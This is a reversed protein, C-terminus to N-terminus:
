DDDYEDSLRMFDLFINMFGTIGREHASKRVKCGLFIILGAVLLAICGIVVWPVGDEPEDVAAHLIQVNGNADMTATYYDAAPAPTAKYVSMLKQGVWYNLPAGDCYMTSERPAAYLTFKVQFFAVKYGDIDALEDMVEDFIQSIPMGKDSTFLEDVFEKFLVGFYGDMFDVEGSDEVYYLDLNEKCDIGFTDYWTDIQNGNISFGIANPSGAVLTAPFRIQLNVDEYKKPNSQDITCMFDLTVRYFQGPELSASLIHLNDLQSSIQNDDDIGERLSMVIIMDNAFGYDNISGWTDDVDSSDNSPENKPLDSSEASVTLPNVLLIMMVLTLVVLWKQKM